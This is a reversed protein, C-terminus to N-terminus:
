RSTGSGTGKTLNDSPSSPPTETTGSGKAPNNAPYETKDGITGSTGPVSPKGPANQNGQANSPKNSGGGAPPDSNKDGVVGSTGPTQAQGPANQASVITTLLGLAALLLIGYKFM